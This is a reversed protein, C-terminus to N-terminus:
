NRSSNQSQSELWWGVVADSTIALFPGGRGMMPSKGIRRYMKKEEERM